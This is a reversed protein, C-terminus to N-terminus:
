TKLFEKIKVLLDDVEFPKTIYAEPAMHESFIKDSEADRATLMIIPIHKYDENGKLMSCITFGNVEPLNIDLTILDPSREEALRLGESGTKATLVKFGHHELRYQLLEIIDPDDEIVLITKSMRLGEIM